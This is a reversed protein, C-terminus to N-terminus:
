SNAKSFCLVSETAGTPRAYKSRHPHSGALTAALTFDNRRKLRLRHGGAIEVLIKPLDNHVDKYYSDQVVIVAAGDTSLSRSINGMSRNLKYFYDLHTKRYYGSSAKSKHNSIKSILDLCTPGWSNDIEIDSVPVRTSGIMKRSLDGVSIEILPSLVALEVRTAATYDIRTCYPPSTLVFDVSEDPVQCELSDGLNLTVSRKNDTLPLTALSNAMSAVVALFDHSITNRSVALRDADTKAKKFWTPNSARFKSAARRCVAFLAVYFTSATASIRDFRGLDKSKVLDGVLLHRLSMELARIAAATEDDFWMCLPENNLQISTGESQKLLERALPTLSDAESPPLSRARAIVIMAPNLDSGIADYFNSNAAFTTTGSGNWPDYIKADAGLKASAILQSAFHAPYGAYYPFFADWGTPRHRVRKPSTIILDAFDVGM